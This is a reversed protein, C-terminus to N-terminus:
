TTRNVVKDIEKGLEWYYYRLIRGKHRETTKEIMHWGGKTEGGVLKKTKGKKRQELKGGVRKGFEIFSGYFSKGSFQRDNKGTGIKVGIQKRSRTLAKLRISRRLRGTRHPTAAKIRPLLRKMALRAATRMAKKADATQLAALRRNLKDDGTLVLQVSTGGGVSRSGRSASGGTRAPRGGAMEYLRKAVSM